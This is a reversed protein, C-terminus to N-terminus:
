HHGHAGDNPELFYSGMDIAFGLKQESLPDPDCTM